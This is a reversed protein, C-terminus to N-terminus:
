KNALPRQVTRITQKKKDTFTQGSITDLGKDSLRKIGANDKTTDVM